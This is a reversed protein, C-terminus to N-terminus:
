LEDGGNNGFVLCYIVVAFVITFVAISLPSMLISPQYPSYIM